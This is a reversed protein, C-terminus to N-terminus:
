GTSANIVGCTSWRVGANCTSDAILLGSAAVAVRAGANAGSAWVSDGKASVLAPFTANLNDRLHVNLEAATLIASAVWTKPATWAM